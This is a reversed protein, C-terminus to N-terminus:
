MWSRGSAAGTLYGLWTSALQLMPAMATVMQDQPLLHAAFLVKTALLAGVYEMIVFEGSVAVHLQEGRAPGRVRADRDRM